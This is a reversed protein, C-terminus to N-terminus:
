QRPAAGSAPSTFPPVADSAGQIRWDGDQKVYLTQTPFAFEIREEDFRQKITLNLEQMGDLYAKYDTGKWWHIVFINLSADAFNNFSIWVDQTMPHARYIEYLLEVARQIRAAPTNYTVGLNILTRINPRRTINTITANAITKNPITILHGDLNRVRMSRLGITEVVGDVADLQIRDGIQFPKDLFIAVAGFLNAVTDQAALGLALGGISLGALVTKIEIGLNDATLLVACLVLAIRLTKRVLPFLHTSFLEEERGAARDRWLSLLLDLVKMAVYTISFAVLCILGKSLFRQAKDPWNFLNLGIHLFIVFAVVKVPGRLMELLLDDLKSETRAAWRKLWVRIIYDLLKSVYFALFVYLLSALYRWLPEGLLTHDRLWSVKDLGFTLYSAELKGFPAVLLNTRALTAPPLSNTVAADGEAGVATLAALLVLGIGCITRLGFRM